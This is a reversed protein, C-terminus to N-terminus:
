LTLQYETPPIYMRAPPPPSIPRHHPIRTPPIVARQCDHLTRSRRRFLSESESDTARRRESHFTTAGFEDIPKEREYRETECTTEWSPRLGRQLRLRWANTSEFSSITYTSPTIPPICHRYTTIRSDTNMRPLFFRLMSDLFPTQHVLRIITKKGRETTTSIGPSPAAVNFTGKKEGKGRRM